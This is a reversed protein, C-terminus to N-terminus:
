GEGVLQASRPVSDSLLEGLAARDTKGNPNLPLASLYVLRRPVMHVPLRARLWRVLDRQPVETGTYCAALVIEEDGAPRLALVVADAVAPYRGLVAEIEGLEIRYGRVKVQHDLRGLHILGTADARVRDGTRYYAAAGIPADPALATFRGTGDDAVFRGRNDAPDLYGDFRQPGRVCLEGEAAPRGDDDLVVHELFDYVPGIPVTGNPTVPWGDPDAPLRYETCAVTLETPGYVNDIVSEPAVAHWAAARRLTLQEGIFVSYRVGTALGTPLNGLEAGVSVVSPVSFWHTIGREVLYRVPELLETRDPCVLTAGGGWTVFLDFVSPDFTLDFTHSTRAGPAIRYRDINHGVYPVLNRHRIPVGKPQGTSGSTFLVYAVDQPRAPFHPGDGPVVDAEALPLVTKAALPQDGAEETVLVDLRASEAIKANRSVPHGPNIPVVTAGLRQVALYGAFAVLSRSALLGVRDPRGGHAAMIRAAVGAACRDLERYTLSRGGVELAVADPWRRVSGAFHDHLTVPGTM